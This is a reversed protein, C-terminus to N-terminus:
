DAIGLRDLVRRKAEGRARDTVYILGGIRRMLNAEYDHLVGDSYAVEWLMEILEIREDEDYNDKITRTFKLLQNTSAQAKTAEDILLDAEESSLEFSRTAIDHISTREDEGIEGDMTAAEVMLAAAALTKIEIKNAKSNLHNEGEPAGEFLAKIKNFM